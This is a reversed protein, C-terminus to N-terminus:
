FGTPKPGHPNSGRERCRTVMTGHRVGRLMPDSGRGHARRRDHGRGLRRGRTDNGPSGSISEIGLFATLHDRGAGGNWSDNGTSSVVSFDSGAGGSSVDVGQGASLTDSGKGGFLEGDGHGGCPTDGGAAGYLVDDDSTGTITCAVTGALVTAPPAFGLSFAVLTSAVWSLVTRLRM